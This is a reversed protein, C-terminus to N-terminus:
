DAAVDQTLYASLHHIAWEAGSCVVVYNRERTLRSIWARQVGNLRGHKKRKIELYCAHWAGRAVPLCLDPVGAKMGTKKLRKAVTWSTRAGNPIAYLLDLEPWRGRMAHAWEIVAAQEEYETPPPYKM